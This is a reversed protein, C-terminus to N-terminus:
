KVTCAEGGVHPGCRQMMCDVGLVPKSVTGDIHCRELSEHAGNGRELMKLTKTREDCSSFWAFARCLGVIMGCMPYENSISRHGFMEQVEVTSRM